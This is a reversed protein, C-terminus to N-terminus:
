SDDRFRTIRSTRSDTASGRVGVGSNSVARHLLDNSARIQGLAPDDIAWEDIEDEIAWTVPNHLNSKRDSRHFLAKGRWRCARSSNRFEPALNM